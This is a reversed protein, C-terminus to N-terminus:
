QVIGLEIYKSVVNDLARRVELDLANVLEAPIADFGYYCGAISGAVAGVTDADGGDNVVGIICDAFNKTRAFWYCAGDLTEYAAGGNNRHFKATRDVKGQMAMQLANCYKRIAQDCVKNNHTLRGQAVAYEEGVLAAPLARMLSGNGYAYKNSAARYWLGTWVDNSMDNFRYKYFLSLVRRCQNGVDIPDSSYWGLFNARCCALFRNKNVRTITGATETSSLIARAVCMSMQTDDTVAGPKVNLWGGGIIKTVGEPGYKKRIEKASMFETTAGMADGIALGYFAGKVKNLKENNTM